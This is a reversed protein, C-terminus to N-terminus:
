VDLEDTLVSQEQLEVRGSSTFAYFTQCMIRSDIYVARLGSSSFCILKLFFFSLVIIIRPNQM